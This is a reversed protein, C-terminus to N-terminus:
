WIVEFRKNFLLAIFNTFSEGREGEIEAILMDFLHEKWVEEILTM